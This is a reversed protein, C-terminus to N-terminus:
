SYVVSLHEHLVDWVEQVATDRDDRKRIYGQTDHDLLAYGFDM